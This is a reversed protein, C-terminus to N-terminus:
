KMAKAKYKKEYVEKKAAAFPQLKALEEILVYQSYVTPDAMEKGQKVVM